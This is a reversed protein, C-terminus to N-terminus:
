ARSVERAGFLGSPRVFLIGLLLAISVADKYAAPMLSISFSEIV